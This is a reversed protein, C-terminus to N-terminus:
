IYSGARINHRREQVNSSKLKRDCKDHLFETHSKLRTSATIDHSMVWSFLFMHVRNITLFVHNKVGFKTHVVVRYWGLGNAEPATSFLTLFPASRNQTHKFRQSSLKLSDSYRGSYAQKLTSVGDHNIKSGSAGACKPTVLHQVILIERVDTSIQTTGVLARALQM